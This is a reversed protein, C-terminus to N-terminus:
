RYSPTYGRRIHEIPLKRNHGVQMTTKAGLEGRRADDSKGLDIQSRDLGTAWRTACTVWPECVAKSTVRSPLVHLFWLWLLTSGAPRSSSPKDRDPSLGAQRTEVIRIVCGVHLMEFDDFQGIRPALCLPLGIYRTRRVSGQIM